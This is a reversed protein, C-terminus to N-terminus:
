CPKRTLLLFCNGILPLSYAHLENFHSIRRSLGHHQQRTRGAVVLRVKARHQILQSFFIVQDADVVVAKVAASRDERIHDRDCLLYFLVDFFFVAAPKVPCDTGRQAAAKYALQDLPLVDMEAVPDKSARIQVLAPFDAGPQLGLQHDREQGAKGFVFFLHCLGSFLKFAKKFHVVFRRVAKHVAKGFEARLGDFVLIVRVQEGPEPVINMHLARLDMEDIGAFHAFLIELAVFLIEPIRLDPFEIHLM